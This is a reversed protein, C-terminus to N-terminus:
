RNTVVVETGLVDLMVACPLGTDNIAQALNQQTQLHMDQLACPFWDAITRAAMGRLNLHRITLGFVCGESQSLSVTSGYSFDFRAIQPHCPWTPQLSDCVTHMISENM